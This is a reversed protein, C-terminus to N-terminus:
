RRHDGIGQFACNPNGCSCLGDYSTVTPVLRDKLGRFLGEFLREIAELDAADLVSGQERLTREVTEIGEWVKCLARQRTTPPSMPFFFLSGCLKGIPLLL